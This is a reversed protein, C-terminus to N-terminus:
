DMKIVKGFPIKYPEISEKCLVWITEISAKKPYEGFGDTFYILLRANPINKKVYEFVPRFDTGGYGHVKLQKLRDRICM